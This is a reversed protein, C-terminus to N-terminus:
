FCFKLSLSVNETGQIFNGYGQRNEESFLLIADNISVVVKISKSFCYIGRVNIFPMANDLYSVVDLEGQWLEDESSLALTTYVKHKTESPLVGLWSALWGIKASSSKGIWSFSLETQLRQYMENQLYESYKVVPFLGSVINQTSCDVLFFDSDFAKTTYEASVTSFLNKTFPLVLNVKGFWFSEEIPSVDFITYTNELMLKEIDTINSSLGGKLSFHGFLDIAKMKESLAFEVDADLSFPFVLADKSYVIGAKAGLSFMDFSFGLLVDANVRNTFSDDVLGYLSYDIGVNLSFFQKQFFYALEPNFFLYSNTPNETISTIGSLNGIYGSYQTLYDIDTNINLSSSENISYVISPSASAHQNTLSFFSPCQNQLGYEQSYWKGSCLFDLKDSLRNKLSVDLNTDQDFFGASYDYSGYKTFSNNSFTISFPNVLGSRYVSFGGAFVGPYGGSISGDLYIMEKNTKETDEVVNTEEQVTISAESLVPLGREEEPLVDVFEPIASDVIVNEEGSIYTTVDPLTIDQQQSFVFEIFLFSLLIFVYKKTNIKKSRM